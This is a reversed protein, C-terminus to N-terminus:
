QKLASMASVQFQIAIVGSNKKRDDDTKQHSYICTGGYKCDQFTNFNACAPLTGTIVLLDMWDSGEKSISAHPEDKKGSPTTGSIRPAKGKGSGRNKM